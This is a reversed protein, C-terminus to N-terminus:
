YVSSDNLSEETIEFSGFFKKIKEENKSLTQEISEPQKIELQIIIQYLNKGVVVARHILIDDNTQQYTFEIVKYIRYNFTKESIIKNKPLIFTKMWSGYSESLNVKDPLLNDRYERIEIMYFNGNVYSQVISSKEVEEEGAVKDSVSVSPEKPFSIKLKLDQGDFTQWNEIEVKAKPMPKVLSRNKQRTAAKSKKQGFANASVLPLVALLILITFKKM